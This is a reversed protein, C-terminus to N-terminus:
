NPRRLSIQSKVVSIPPYPYEFRYQLFFWFFFLCVNLEIEKNSYAIHKNTYM